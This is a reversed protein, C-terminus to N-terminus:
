EFSFSSGKVKDMVAYRLADMSHSFTHDPRNLTKGTKDKEWSYNNIERLVNTCSPKIIIKYQQLLQIGFLVSDRGKRAPKAKYLGYNRLEQISKPEASDFIIYQNAYGMEWIANYIDENTVNEKYWEDFIYIEKNEDDIMCAVFATPDTWGLDCGFAAKINKKKRIDDVKFDREEFNEFILGESVGWEGLGAIKFRRPNQKRMNEFLKRDSEDLWENCKYNTTIALTESDPNDFFRKKLWSKDSWPNFSLSVQKWLGEAVEGRCSEDLIAFSSEDTIEYAEEVWIWCLSGTEVTISTVKLPDDLGRFLIKQGTPKYTIELPSEKTQWYDNVGLRNIAWKLDAFMSDHLTSFVKRVCLLNATQHQM